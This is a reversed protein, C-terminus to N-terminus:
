WDIPTVARWGDENYGEGFSENRTSRCEIFDKLGPYPPHIKTEEPRYRPLYIKYGLGTPRNLYLVGLDMRYRPDIAIRVEDLIWNAARTLEFVLDHILDSTWEAEAASRDYEEQSLVRQKHLPRHVRDGTRDNRELALDAALYLDDCVLRFNEFAEEVDPLVGPWPRSFLWVRTSQLRDMMEATFHPRVTLPRSAWSAWHGLDIRDEWESIFDILILEQTTRRIEDPERLSAFWREHEAKMDLLREVTWTAEDDDIIKHHELCLLILNSYSNREEVTLPSQGRPGDPSEAVIHCEQSVVAPRGSQEVEIVLPRRCGSFACMNGSRTWLLKRDRINIAAM